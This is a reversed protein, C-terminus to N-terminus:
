VCGAPIDDHGVTDGGDRARLQDLVVALSFAAHDLHCLGSERDVRDGNTYAMIHRLCAALLRSDEFGGRWNDRGYKGVGFMMARACGEVLGRPVLSLDPKGDDFKKGKKTTVTTGDQMTFKDPIDRLDPEHQCGPRLWVPGTPVELTPKVEERWFADDGRGSM